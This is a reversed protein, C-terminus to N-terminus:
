APSTFPVTDKVDVWVKGQDIKIPYRALHCTEPNIGGGTCGDFQWLHARCTLVGDKYTGEVLSIDQHPCTGQLVTVEGNSQCLVLLEHGDIEHAVMDGEWLDDVACLQKFAM